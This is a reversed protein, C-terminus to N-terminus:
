LSAATEAATTTTARQVQGHRHRLTDFESQIMGYLCLDGKDTADRLVGELRFGAFELLRRARKNKKSTMSTIRRVKLHDFPYALLEVINQRTAWRPSEAAFSLQVDTKRYEHYVAVALPRREATTVLAAQPYLLSNAGIRAAAWELLVRQEAPKISWYIV